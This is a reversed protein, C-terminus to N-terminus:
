LARWYGPDVMVMDCARWYGPGVVVKVVPEGAAQAKDLVSSWLLVNIETM